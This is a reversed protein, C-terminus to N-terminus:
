WVQYDLIWKNLPILVTNQSHCNPCEVSFVDEKVKVPITQGKLTYIIRKLQNRCKPCKYDETVLECEEFFFMVRSSKTKREKVEFKFELDCDICRFQFIEGLYESEM